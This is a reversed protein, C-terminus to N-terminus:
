QINKKKRKRLIAFIGVGLLLGGFILRMWMARKQKRDREQRNKVFSNLNRTNQENFRVMEISDSRKMRLAFLSDNVKQISDLEARQKAISKKCIRL